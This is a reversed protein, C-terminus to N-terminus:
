CRQLLHSNSHYIKNYQNFEFGPKPTIGPNTCTQPFCPVQFLYSKALIEPTHNSNKYSEGNVEKYM